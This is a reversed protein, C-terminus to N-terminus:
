PSAAIRMVLEDNYGVVVRIYGSLSQDVDADGTDVLLPRGGLSAVKQRTALVRIDERRVRRLVQPSIQQNGRGFLYGQGGIITVIISTPTGPDAALIELLQQEGVDKAVQRRGRVVDVGLLTGDIGLQRKLARTSTGPGIIYTRGPLMEDELRYAIQELASEEAQARGAKMSQVRGEDFPIRLYGYLAASVRDARFEGEDIDMVEAERLRPARGDLAMAALQGAVRPNVAYVASHIKVGAPIGLATVRQGVAECIDRATGDGGAFLLLDVGADAMAAAARQTDAGTSPERDARDIVVPAFGAARAADEGMAGAFTLIELEEALEHLQDLAVGARGPAEPVAGLEQARALIDPGDTGKLGVRGGMGAIPNVILGLRKV